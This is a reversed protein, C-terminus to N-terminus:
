IRRRRSATFSLVQKIVSDSQKTGLQTAHLTCNEYLYTSQSGDVERIYEYITGYPVNAGRYYADDLVAQFDDLESNGRDLSVSGDYKGPIMATRDVGDLGNVEIMKPNPKSEFATVTRLDLRGGNLAFPHLVIVQVDRGVNFDNVPM